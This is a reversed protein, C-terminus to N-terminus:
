EKPNIKVNHKRLTKMTHRDRTHTHPGLPKDWSKTKEHKLTKAIEQKTIGKATIQQQSQQNWKRQKRVKKPHKHRKTSKQPNTENKEAPTSKPQVVGVCVCRAFVFFKVVCRLFACFVYVCVSCLWLGVRHCCSSDCGFCSFCETVWCVFVCTCVSCANRCLSSFWAHVWVHPVFGGITWICFLVVCVCSANRLEKAQTAPWRFNRSSCSLGVWRSQGRTVVRTMRPSAPHSHVEVGHRYRLPAGAGCHRSCRVRQLPRAFGGEQARKCHRTACSLMEFPPRFSQGSVSLWHGSHLKGSGHTTSKSRFPLVNTDEAVPPLGAGDAAQTQCDYGVQRAQPAPLPHRGASRTSGVVRRLRSSVLILEKHSSVQPQLSDVSRDGAVAEAGSAQVSPLTFLQEPEIQWDRGTVFPLGADFAHRLTVDLIAQNIPCWQRRHSLDSGGPSVTICCAGLCWSRM